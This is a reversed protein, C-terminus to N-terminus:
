GRRGDENKDQKGGSWKLEKKERERVEKKDGLM